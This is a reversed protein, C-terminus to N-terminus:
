VDVEIRSQLSRQEALILRTVTMSETLTALPLRPEAAARARICDAFHRLQADYGGLAPLDPSTTVSDATVRVNPTNALDFEITAKEFEATYRMRFGRGPSPLWGGEATVIADRLHGDFRYTTMVHDISGVSHVSRPQGLAHVIFDADHIHLDFIAGGCRAPDAYFTSWTPRSGLRTLRLALLRGHRADAICDKLFPWGPWFRMCMAPMALRNQAEAAAAIRDIEAPTLAVPKELLIHLGAKMADVALDAHTDTPTAIVVADLGELAFLEGPTAFTRVERPDFLREPAPAADLNGSASVMGSLRQPSQDSVGALEISLGDAAASNVARIHTQGMFGLGAVGLRLTRSL